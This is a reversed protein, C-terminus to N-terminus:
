GGKARPVHAFDIDYPTIETAAGSITTPPFWLSDKLGQYNRGLAIVASNHQGAGNVSYQPNSFFTMGIFDNPHNHKIDDTAPQIGGNCAWAQAEHMNGPWLFQHTNYNGLWDVWTMPGFWFQHRPPYPNDAYDMYPLQNTSYINFPASNPQAVALGTTLTLTYPTSSGSVASISYVNVDGSFKVYQGGAPKSATTVDISTAGPNYGGGKKITGAQLGFDPKQKIQIPTSNPGTWKYFDGNGILASIPVGAQTNTYTGAGTG